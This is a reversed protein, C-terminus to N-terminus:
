DPPKAAPLEPQGLLDWLAYRDCSDFPGTYLNRYVSETNGCRGRVGLRVSVRYEAFAQRVGGWYHCTACRVQNKDFTAARALGPRLCALGFGLAALLARRTM